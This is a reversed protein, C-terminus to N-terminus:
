LRLQNYDIVGQGTIMIMIMIMYIRFGYDYDYDYNYGLILYNYWLEAIIMNLM